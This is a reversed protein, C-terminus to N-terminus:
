NSQVKKCKYVISVGIFSVAFCVFLDKIFYDLSFVHHLNCDVMFQYYFKFPWVLEFTIRGKLSFIFTVITVLGMLVFSLLIQIVYKSM